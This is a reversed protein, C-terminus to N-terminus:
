VYKHREGEFDWGNASAELEALYPAVGYLLMDAESELRAKAAATERAAKSEAEAALFPALPSNRAADFASHSAGM